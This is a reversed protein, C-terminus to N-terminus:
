HVGNLQHCRRHPTACPGPGLTDSTHHPECACRGHWTRPPPAKTSEDPCKSAQYAVIEQKIQSDADKKLEILCKEYYNSCDVKAHHEQEQRAQTCHATYFDKSEERIQQHLVNKRRESKDLSWKLVERHIGPSLLSLIHDMVVAQSHDTAMLIGEFDERTLCELAKKQDTWHTCLDCTLSPSNPPLPFVKL